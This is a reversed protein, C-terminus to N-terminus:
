PQEGVLTLRESWAPAGTAADAPMSASLEVLGGPAQDCVIFRYEKQRISSLHELREEALFPKVTIQRAPVPKGDLTYTVTQLVASDAFSRRVRDRFYAAALGIQKNMGRVDHELFVMLLPNGRFEDVSPYFEHHEGTLFQFSVLKTGDPHIETIREGVTDVLADGGTREYRYELTEVQKINELHPTQFLATVAQNSPTAPRDEDAMAPCAAVAALAAV